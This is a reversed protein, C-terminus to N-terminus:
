NVMFTILLTLNKLNITTYHRFQSVIERDHVSCYSKRITKKQFCTDTTESKLMIVPLGDIYCFGNLKFRM